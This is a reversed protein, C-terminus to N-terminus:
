LENFFDLEKRVLKYPNFDTKNTKNGFKLGDINTSFNNLDLYNVNKFNKLMEICVSFDSTILPIGFTAMECMMVGQSDFRTPMVAFKYQNLLAPIDKQAIFKNFVEVNEPCINHKFYEGKGYIHFTKKPNAKALEIVLDVAYKSEDFPRITICDAVVTSSQVYSETIFAENVANPIIVVKAYKEPKFGMNKVFKDKMWESVFVMGITNKKCFIGTLWKRLIKFKFIQYIESLIQNFLSYRIWKYPKPYDKYGRLVEHGHFFFIIKKGNMRKLLRYHNKINPAHSLIYDYEDFNVLSEPLVAINEFEYKSSTNFSLVAVDEGMSQYIKNRSHVYSMAYKNKDSPYDQCIVLIKM